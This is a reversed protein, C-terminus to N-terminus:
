WTYSIYLLYHSIYIAIFIKIHKTYMRYTKVLSISPNEHGFINTIQRMLNLEVISLFGILVSNPRHNIHSCIHVYNMMYSNLVEKIRVFDKKPTDFTKTYKNKKIYFTNANVTM